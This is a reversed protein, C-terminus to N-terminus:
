QIGIKLYLLILWIIEIVISHKIKIYFKLLLLINKVCLIFRSHNFPYSNDHSSFLLIHPM